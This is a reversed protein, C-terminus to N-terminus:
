SISLLQSEFIWTGDKQKICFVAYNAANLRGKFYYVEFYAEQKDKSCYLNQFGVYGGYRNKLRLIEYNSFFEDKQKTLLTVGKKKSFKNLDLWIPTNQEEDIFSFDESFNTKLPSLISDYSVIPNIYVKLPKLKNIISDPKIRGSHGTIDQLEPPPPPDYLGTDFKRNNIYTEIYVYIVEPDAQQVTDSCSQMLIIVFIFLPNITIRM